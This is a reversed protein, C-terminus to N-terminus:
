DCPMDRIATIGALTATEVIVGIIATDTSEVSTIQPVATIGTGRTMLTAGTSRPTTAMSEVPILTSASRAMSLRSDMAKTMSQVISGTIIATTQMAGRTARAVTAVPIKVATSGTTTQTVGNTRNVEMTVSPNGRADRRAPLGFTWTLLLFQSAVLM